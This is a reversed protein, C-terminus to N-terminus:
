PTTEIVNIMLGGAQAKDLAEQKRDQAKQRMLQHTLVLNGPATHWLCTWIIGHSQWQELTFTSFGM